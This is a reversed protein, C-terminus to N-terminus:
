AQEQSDLWATWAVSAAVATLADVPWPALWLLVAAAVVLATTGIAAALRPLTLAAPSSVVHSM